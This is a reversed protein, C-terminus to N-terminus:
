LIIKTPKHNNLISVTQSNQINKLNLANPCISIKQVSTVDLCNLNLFSYIKINKSNLTNPCNSILVNRTKFIKQIPPMLITQKSIKQISSM